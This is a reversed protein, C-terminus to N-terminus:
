ANMVYIEYNVNRFSTFAIRGDASWVPNKDYSSSTSTQEIGNLNIIHIESRLEAHYATYAIRQGTPSWSPNSHASRESSQIAILPQNLLPELLPAVRKFVEEWTKNGSLQRAGSGGMQQLLGSANMLYI